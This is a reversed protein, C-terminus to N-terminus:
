IINYFHKGDLVQIRSNYDLILIVDFDLKSNQFLEPQKKIEM